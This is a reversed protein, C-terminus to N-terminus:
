TLEWEMTATQPSIHSVIWDFYSTFPVLQDRMIWFMLSLDLMDMATSLLNEVTSFGRALAVREILFMNQLFDLMPTAQAFLTKGQGDKPM